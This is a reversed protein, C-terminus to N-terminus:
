QNDSTQMLAPGNGAALLASFRSFRMQNQDPQVITQTSSATTACMTQRGLSGPGFGCKTKDSRTPSEAPETTNRVFSNRDSKWTEGILPFSVSDGRWLTATLPHRMIGSCGPCDFITNLNMASFSEGTLTFSRWIAIANGFSQAHKASELHCLISHDKCTGSNNVMSGVLISTHAICTGQTKRGPSIIRKGGMVFGQTTGYIPGSLLAPITAASIRDVSNRYVTAAFM